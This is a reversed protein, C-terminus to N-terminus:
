AGAAKWGRFAAMLEDRAAPSIDEERLAGVLSVTRQMQGVYNVCPDCYVLHEEFRTREDESLEHELYDNILEVLERCTLDGHSVVGHLSASAGATVGRFPGVAVAARQRLARDDPRCSRARARAIRGRGAPAARPVCARVPGGM